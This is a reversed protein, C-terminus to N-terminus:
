RDQASRSAKPIGRAGALGSLFSIVTDAVSRKVRDEENVGDLVIVESMPDGDLPVLTVLPHPFFDAHSMPATVLALRAAVMENAEAPNRVDTLQPDGLRALAGGRFSDLRGVQPWASPLSRGALFVEGLVQEPHISRAPAFRHSRPLLVGLRETYLSVSAWGPVTLPGFTIVLDALGYALTRDLQDFNLQRIRIRTKPLRHRLIGISGVAAPSTVGIVLSSDDWPEQSALRAGDANNVIESLAEYIAKGHRNLRIGGPSRDLLERGVNAEVRRIAASIGQQTIFSSQAARSMSGAEVAALLLRIDDVRLTM